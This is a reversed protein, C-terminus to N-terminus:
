SFTQVRASRGRDFKKGDKDVTQYDAIPERPAIRDLSANVHFRDEFIVNTDSM